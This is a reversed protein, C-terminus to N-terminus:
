RGEPVYSTISFLARPPEFGFTAGPRIGVSMMKGAASWYFLEKDSHAWM